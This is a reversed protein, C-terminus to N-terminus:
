ARPHSPLLGVQLMPSAMIAVAVFVNWGGDQKVEKLMSVQVWHCACVVKSLWIVVCIVTVSRPVNGALEPSVLQVAQAPDPAFKGNEPVNSKKLLNV